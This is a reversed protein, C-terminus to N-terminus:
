LLSKANEISIINVNYSIAKNVKSSTFGEYPVILYKTDKTVSNENADYGKENLYKMFKEDRIGSFRIKGKNIINNKTEIINFYKMSKIIDNKFLKMDNFINLVITDGIGKISTLSLMDNNNCIDFLESINFKSLILKFRESSVGTFGFSGIFIYDYIPTNKIKEIENIINIIQIDGFGKSKLFNNDINCLETLSKIGTNIVFSDSIGTFGLKSIMDSVRSIIRGSCNINCCFAMDSKVYVESGCCPCVIDPVENIIDEHKYIYAMCDNVYDVRIIEGSILGLEKYRKYSHLSAINHNTGLFEIPEFEAMPTIRGDKGVTFFYRIFKTLKSLSPFKLAISYKDVHNVRGLKEKIDEDLYTIVIGDYMFPLYNRMKQVEIMYQKIQYLISIYNGTFINYLGNIGIRESYLSNLVEIEEARNLNSFNNSKLPILTIYNTYKSSDLRNMIGSICTRPNKYDSGTKMNFICMDEYLVIAEFKVIDDEANSKMHKPFAKFMVSSLRNVGKNQSLDGRTIASNIVGKSILCEISVGDYKLECVVSFRRDPDLIGDKIHKGFFDRELITVNSNNISNQDVESCLVFKCKDLTGVLDTKHSLEENYSNNIDGMRVLLKKDPHITNDYNNFYNTNKFDIINKNLIQNYDFKNIVSKNYDTIMNKCKKFQNGNNINQYINQLSDYIDDDIISIGFSEYVSNLIYLIDCLSNIDNVNLNNSNNIIYMSLYRIEKTASELSIWSIDNSNVRNVIDAIM